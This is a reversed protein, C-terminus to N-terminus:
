IVQMTQEQLTRLRQLLRRIRTYIEFLVLLDYVTFFSSASDRSDISNSYYM